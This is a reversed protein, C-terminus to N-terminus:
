GWYLSITKYPLELQKWESCIAHRCACFPESYNRNATLPPGRTTTGHITSVILIENVMNLSNNRESASICCMYFLVNNIARLTDASSGWFVIDLLSETVNDEQAVIMVICNIRWYANRTSVGLFPSVSSVNYLVSPGLSSYLLLFLLLRNCYNKYM